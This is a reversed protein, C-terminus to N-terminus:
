LGNLREEDLLRIGAAERRIAGSATLADLAPNTM